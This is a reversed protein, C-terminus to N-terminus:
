GWNTAGRQGIAKRPKVSITRAHRIMMIGYRVASIVDDNSKILKV